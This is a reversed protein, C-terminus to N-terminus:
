EGPKNAIFSGSGSLSVRGEGSMYWAHSIRLHRREDEFEWTYAHVHMGDAVSDTHHALHGRM